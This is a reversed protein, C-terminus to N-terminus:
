RITTLLNNNAMQTCTADASSYKAEKDAGTAGLGVSRGVANNALDMAKDEPENGGEDEYRDGIQNAKTAGFDITMRASWYCHRYADGIGGILTSQPFNEIASIRAVNAHSYAALCAAINTPIICWSNLQRKELPSAAVLSAALVLSALLSFSRM